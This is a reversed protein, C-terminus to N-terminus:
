AICHKKLRALFQKKEQGQAQIDLLKQMNRSSMWSKKNNYYYNLIKWYKEPYLLQVYLLMNEERSLNREKHYSELLEMGFSSNWHNKEMTKRMLDYLDRIQIGICTQDFHTTAVGQELLLINHYNYNNHVYICQKKARKALEEYGSSELLSMSEDAQSYFDDYNELICVEFENKHNKGKIYSRVRKMERNHRIYVDKLDYNGKKPKKDAQADMDENEVQIGSMKKHLLALNGAATKVSALDRLNCEEGRYWRRLVYDTSYCDKSCLEGNKNALIRDTYEYGQAFLHSTVAKEIQLHKKSGELSKLLVLGETTDLLTGGRARYRAKVTFDYQKIVDELKDDM